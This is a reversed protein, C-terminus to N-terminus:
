ETATLRVSDGGSQGDLTVPLRVTSAPEYIGVYLTTDPPMRLRHETILFEGPQWSGSPAPGTVTVPPGDQQALTKRGADDAHVFIHHPPLLPQLIEWYLRVLTDGAETEDRDYGYLFAHTGLQAPVPLLSSPTRREFAARRQEVRVEGLAVPASKAGTATDVFGAALRYRGSSIVGPVFFHVPLYLLENRSLLDAGYGALPWGEYGAVGRGGGDLLSVYLSRPSPADEQAQSFLTLGLETGALLPRDADPGTFGLFAIGERAVAPMLSSRIPLRAVPQLETPVTVTVQGIVADVQDSAALTLAELSGSGAQQRAVSVGIRYAGPPLGAPVVLGVRETMETGPVVDAWASAYERSSWVGGQEDLLRLSVNLDIPEAVRWTLLVAVPENAAAVTEPMTAAAVLQVAGFDDSRAVSAPVPLDAWATLRTAAYWRNELNAGRQALYREIEAPLSSGFSLPEPFWISGRQLADDLTAQVVPSWVVAENAAALLVPAPGTLVPDDQPVYARWYGVQWPFIALLTDQNRGQQMIQHLIPRYDHAVYRPTTYYLYIGAMNAALLVALAVPGAGWVHWARDIAFALLLLAYPLAFLLLREGGEPFFPYRLSVLWGGVFAVGLLMALLSLAARNRASHGADPAPVRRRAFAVGGTLLLLVVVGLLLPWLTTGDFWPVHGGTFAGLHRLFYHGPDLAVDQDSEVKASVYTVLQPVAYVLWPLYLWVVVAQGAVVSWFRRLTRWGHVLAWLLQGAAVFAFYYLTYLGATTLLVYGVAPLAWGVALVAGDLRRWWQWWLVTSAVSLTLGLGYMRVEQSYFLHMPNFALLLVALVLLRRHGPFLSWALWAQLPLALVGLIVSLTRDVVPQASGWVQIWLHLLAYYLPPHIDQATLAVMRALPETAFYVSYGEDWWLPQWALRLTRLLAGFAVLFLLLWGIRAPQLATRM